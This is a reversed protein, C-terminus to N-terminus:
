VVISLLEEPRRPKVVFETCGARLCRDRIEASSTGSIILIPAFALSPDRRMAACVAAGDMQPMELDLLILRPVKERALEVARTGNEATLVEVGARMLFTNEIQLLAKLSDAILVSTAGM